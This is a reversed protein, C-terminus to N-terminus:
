AERLLRVADEPRGVDRFLEGLKVRILADRPALAAVRQYAQVAAGAEGRRRALDGDIEILRPDDPAAKLSETLTTMSEDVYFGGNDRVGHFTPFTGTLLSTHAPLTLPVVTTAQAFRLGRAALADIIPTSAAAYGYSGVRDARLTDVSILLVSRPRTGGGLAGRQWAFWGAALAILM